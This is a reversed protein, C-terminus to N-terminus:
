TTRHFSDGVLRSRLAALLVGAAIAATEARYVEPGLAVSPLGCAQEEDTWGGEPGVLVTPRDLTPPGGGAEALAAGTLGAVEEFSAPDSVEPLWARRSQM